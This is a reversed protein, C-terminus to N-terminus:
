VIGGNWWLGCGPCCLSSRLSGRGRGSSGRCGGLSGVGGRSVVPSALASIHSIPACPDRVADVEARVSFVGSRKDRCSSSVDSFEAGGSRGLALVDSKMEDERSGAVVCRDSDAADFEVQLENERRGVGIGDPAETEVRFSGSNGELIGDPAETEVRFSESNGELVEGYETSEYGM